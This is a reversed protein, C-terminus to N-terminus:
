CKCSPQKSKNKPELPQLLRSYLELDFGYGTENELTAEHRYGCEGLMKLLADHDYLTNKQSTKTKSDPLSRDVQFAFRIKTTNIISPLIMELGRLITVGVQHHEHLIESFSVLTGISVAPSLSNLGVISIAGKPNGASDNHIFFAESSTFHAYRINFVDFRAPTAEVMTYIVASKTDENFCDKLRTSLEKIETEDMVHLGPMKTMGSTCIEQMEQENMEYVGLVVLKMIAGRVDNHIREYPIEPYEDHLTTVIQSPTRGQKIEDYIRCAAPNFFTSDSDRHGSLPM